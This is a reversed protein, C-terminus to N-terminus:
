PRVHAYLERLRFNNDLGSIASLQNGNVFLVELNVMRDFGSLQEIGQSALCLETCGACRLLVSDAARLLM